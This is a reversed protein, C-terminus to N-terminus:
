KILYLGPGLLMNHLSFSNENFYVTMTGKLLKIKDVQEIKKIIM